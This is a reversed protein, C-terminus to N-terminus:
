FKAIPLFVSLVTKGPASKVTIVGGHAHIIEETISLGLGSGAPRNTVMPEFIHDVIDSEIGTGNDQIDIRLVQEQELSGLIHHDIRTRFIIESESKFGVEKFGLESESSIRDDSVYEMETVAQIANRTMNLIAQILQDEDGWIDPLSPDYDTKIQLPQDPDSEALKRVHELALHVNLIKPKKVVVSAQMQGVLRSLRDVESVIIGTFERHDPNELESSLLQAAGRIGGLPNRIEHALGRVVNQRSNPSDSVGSLKSDSQKEFIELCVMKRELMWWPHTVIDVRKSERKAPFEIVLNHLKVRADNDLCKRCAREISSEPLDQRESKEELIVDGVVKGYVRSFSDQILIEASENLFYIKMDSELVLVSTTMVDLITPFLNLETTM